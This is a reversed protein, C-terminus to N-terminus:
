NRTKRKPISQSTMLPALGGASSAVAEDLRYSLCSNMGVRDPARGRQNGGENTAASKKPRGEIGLNLLPSQNLATAVYNLVRGLNIRKKMAKV